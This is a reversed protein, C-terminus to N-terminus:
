NKREHLSKRKYKEEISHFLEHSLLVDSIETNGLLRSLEPNKCKEEVRHIADMFISVQNPERFEAFMVRDTHEPLEPYSVSLKLEAALRGPDATGYQSVIKKKWELGCEWAEKMWERQKEKPIRGVLPERSFAYSYWDMIPIEHLGTLMELLEREAFVPREYLVTRQKGFIGELVPQLLNQEKGQKESM